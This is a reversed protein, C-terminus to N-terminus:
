KKKKTLKDNCNNKHSGIMLNCVCNHTRIGNIHCVENNKRDYNEINIQFFYRYVLRSIVCSFFKSSGGIHVYGSKKISGIFKRNFVRGKSSLLYLRNNKNKIEIWNEECDCLNINSM